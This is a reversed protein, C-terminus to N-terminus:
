SPACYGLSPWNQLRKCSHKAPCTPISPDCLKRCTGPPSGSDSQCTHGAACDTATTCPDGEKAKGPPCICDLYSGKVLYCAAGQACEISTIPNCTTLADEPSCTSSGDPAGAGDHATGDHATGDHATGDRSPMTGPCGVALLALAACLGGLDVSCAPRSPRQVPALLVMM